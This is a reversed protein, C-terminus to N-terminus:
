FGSVRTSQTTLEHIYTSSKIATNYRHNKHGIHWDDNIDAMILSYCWILTWTFYFPKRTVNTILILM